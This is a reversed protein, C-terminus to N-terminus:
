DNVWTQKAKEKGSTSIVLSVTWEWEDVRGRSSNESGPCLETICQSAYIWLWLTDCFKSWSSVVDVTWYEWSANSHNCHSPTHLHHHRSLHIQILWEKNWLVFHTLCYVPRINVSSSPSIYKAFMNVYTYFWKQSLFIIINHNKNMTFKDVHRSFFVVIPKRKIAFSNKKAIM